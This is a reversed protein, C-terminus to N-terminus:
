RDSAEGSRRRRSFYWIVLPAIALALAAALQLLAWASYKAHDRDPFSGLWATQIGWMLFFAAALLCAGTTSWMVWKKM